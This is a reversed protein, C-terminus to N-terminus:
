GRVPMVVHTLQSVPLAGRYHSVLIASHPDGQTMLSTSVMEGRNNIDLAVAVKSVYDPNFRVFENDKPHSFQCEASPLVSAYDPFKGDISVVPVSAVDKGKLDKFLAFGGMDKVGTGSLSFEVSEVKRQRAKTRFEKLLQKSSFGIIMQSENRSGFDFQLPEHKDLTWKSMMHGNTAVVCGKELDVLFGCLYYRIDDEAMSVSMVRAASASLELTLKHTNM